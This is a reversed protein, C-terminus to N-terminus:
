FLGGSSAYFVDRDEKQNQLSASVDTDQPATGASSHATDQSASHDDKANVATNGSQFLVTAVAFVILSFPAIISLLNNKLYKM